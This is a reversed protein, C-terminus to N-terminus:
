YVKVVCTRSSFTLCFIIIEKNCSFDVTFADHVINTFNLIAESIM